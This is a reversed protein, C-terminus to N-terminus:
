LHLALRLSYNDLEFVGVDHRSYELAASARDVFQWDFGFGFRYGTDDDIQAFPREEPTPFPFNPEGPRPRTPFLPDGIIGGLIPEVPPTPGIIVVGIRAVGSVDFDTRTVGAHWTAAFRGTLPWRFRASLHMSEMDVAPPSVFAFTSAGADIKGLDSYGLEIAMFDFLEYGLFTSWAGDDNDFPLGNIPISEPLQGFPVDVNTDAISDVDTIGYSAGIYIPWDRASAQACAFLTLAACLLQITKM